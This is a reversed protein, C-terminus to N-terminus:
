LVVVRVGAAGRFRALVGRVFRGRVRDAPDPRRGGAGVGFRAGPAGGPDSRDAGRGYPDAQTRPVRGRRRATYGAGGARAVPVPCAPARPPAELRQGRPTRKPTRRRPGGRRPDDITRRSLYPWGGPGPLGAAASESP